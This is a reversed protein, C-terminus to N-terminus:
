LCPTTVVVKMLLWFMMIKALLACALTVRLAKEAMKLREVLMINNIISTSGRLIELSRSNRATIPTPLLYKMRKRNVRSSIFSKLAM